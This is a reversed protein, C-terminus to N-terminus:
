KNQPQGALPSYLRRYDSETLGLMGVTRYRGKILLAERRFGEFLFGAKEAVHRSADNGEIFRVEIRHLKLVDFGFAMVRRIAESAYGKGQYEPNIVYGIEGVDNQFDFSTFGCTGIMRGEKWEVVAWDYFDGVNYRTGVYQLYEKTYQKTKHPYWALYRSTEEMSAYRYMDDTDSVLMKRLVLRDTELTPLHSFIHYIDKKQM